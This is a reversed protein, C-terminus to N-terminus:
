LLQPGPAPIDVPLAEKASARGNIHYPPPRASVTRVCGFCQELDPIVSVSPVALHLFFLPDLTPVADRAVDRIRQQIGIRPQFIMHLDFPEFFLPLPGVEDQEIMLCREILKKYAHDKLARDIMDCVLVQEGLPEGGPGDAGADAHGFLAAGDADRRLAVPRVGAAGDIDVRGDCSQGFHQAQGDRQHAYLAAVAHRRAPGVHHAAPGHPGVHRPHDLRFLHGRKGFILVLRGERTDETVIRHIKAVYPCTADLITCGRSALSKLDNPTVGHARIIVTAGDPIEDLREATVVGHEALDAIVHRNHILPGAAYLPRNPSANELAMQIARRVGFCYGAHKALTIM